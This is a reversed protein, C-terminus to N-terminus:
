ECGDKEGHRERGGLVGGGEDREVGSFGYYTEVPATM